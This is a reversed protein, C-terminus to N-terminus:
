SVSRRFRRRTISQMVRAGSATAPLTPYKWYRPSM